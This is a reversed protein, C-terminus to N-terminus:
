NDKGDEEVEKKNDKKSESFKKIEWGKVKMELIEKEEDSTLPVNPGENPRFTVQKNTLKILIALKKGKIGKTCKLM